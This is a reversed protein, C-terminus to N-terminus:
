LQNIKGVPVPSEQCRSPLATIRTEYEHEAAKCERRFHEHLFVFPFDTFRALHIAQKKRATNM